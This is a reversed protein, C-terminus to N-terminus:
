GRKNFRRPIKLEEVLNIALKPIEECTLSILRHFITIQNALGEEYDITFKREFRASEPPVQFKSDERTKFSRDKLYSKPLNFWGATERVNM